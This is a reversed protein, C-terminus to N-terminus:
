KLVKGIIRFAENKLTISKKMADEDPVDLFKPSGIALFAKYNINGELNKQCVCGILGDLESKKM